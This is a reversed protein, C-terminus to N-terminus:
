LNRHDAARELPSKKKKKIYEVAQKEQSFARKTDIKKGEKEKDKRKLAWLGSMLTFPVTTKERRRMVLKKEEKIRQKEIRTGHPQPQKQHYTM